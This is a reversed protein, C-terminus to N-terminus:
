KENLLEQKIDLVIDAVLEPTKKLYFKMCEIQLAADLRGRQIQRALELQKSVQEGSFMHNCSAVRVRTGKLSNVADQFEKLTFNTIEKGYLKLGIMTYYVVARDISCEKALAELNLTGRYRQITELWPMLRAVFDQRCAEAAPQVKEAYKKEVKAAVSELKRIDNIGFSGLDVVASYWNHSHISMMTRKSTPRVDNYVCRATVGAVYGDLELKPFPFLKDPKRNINGSHPTIWLNQPTEGWVYTYFRDWTSSKNEYEAETAAAFSLSNLEKRGIRPIRLEKEYERATEFDPKARHFNIGYRGVNFDNDDPLRSAKAPIFRSNGDHSDYVEFNPDSEKLVFKKLFEPTVGLYAGNNDEKVLKKM